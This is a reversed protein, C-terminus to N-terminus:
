LITISEKGLHSTTLNDEIDGRPLAKYILILLQKLQLQGLPWTKKEKYIISVMELIYSKPEVWGGKGNHGM